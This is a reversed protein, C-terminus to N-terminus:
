PSACLCPDFFVRPGNTHKSRICLLSLFFSGILVTGMQMREHETNKVNIERWGCARVHVVGKWRCVVGFLRSELSFFFSHWLAFGLAVVGCDKSCDWTRTRTWARESPASLTNLATVYGYTGALWVRVFISGWLTPSCVVVASRTVGRYIIRCLVNKASRELTCCQM